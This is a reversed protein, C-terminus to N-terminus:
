RERAITGVAVVVGDEDYMCALQGPAVATVPRELELRADAGDLDVLRGPVAGDRTRYRTKVLVRQAGAPDWVTVDRLRLARRELSARPGVTVTGSEPDTDNVYWPGGARSHVEGLGRRQGPTFRAIGDHSGLERGTEDVISGAPGMAGARALFSRYDGGGLFCVEQSEPVTAQELGLEAAIARVEPKRMGGLPFEYREVVDPSLRALMYSQDKREDVGQRILTRGSRGESRRVYHGTAVRAAGTIGALRDLEDLRFSGNCRVCPNPTLGRAYESVFPAVVTDLFPRRLDISFHPVGAAHCTRRARRVSDPACCAAEPDPAQPDIWLRLTMGVARRGTMSKHLAVASDVGGSMAVVVDAGGRAWAAPAAQQAILWNGLGHHFADEVVRAREADEEDFAAFSPHLTTLGLAAAEIVTRGQAAECLASATAFASARGRVRASCRVITGDAADVDLFFRAVVGCSGGACGETIAGSPPDGLCPDDLHESVSRV